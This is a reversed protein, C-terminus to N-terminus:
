FYILFLQRQVIDVLMDRIRKKVVNVFEEFVSLLIDKLHTGFEEEFFDGVLEGDKDGVENVM